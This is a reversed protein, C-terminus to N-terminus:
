PVSKSGFIGGISSAVIGSATSSDFDQKAQQGGGGFGM